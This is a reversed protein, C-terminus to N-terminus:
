CNTGKDNSSSFSIFFIESLHSKVIPSIQGSNHKNGEVVCTKLPGSNNNLISLNDAKEHCIHAAMPRSSQHPFQSRSM